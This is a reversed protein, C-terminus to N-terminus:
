KTTEFLSSRLLFMTGDDLLKIIIDSAMGGLEGGWNMVISVRTEFIVSPVPFVIM